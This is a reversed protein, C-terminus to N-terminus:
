NAMRLWGKTAIAAWTRREPEGLRARDYCEAARALIVPFGGICPPDGCAVWSGGYNLLRPRTVRVAPQGHERSREVKVLQEAM